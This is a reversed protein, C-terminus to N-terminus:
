SAEGGGGGRKGSPRDFRWITGDDCSAILTSGEDSLATQRVVSEGGCGASAAGEQMKAASPAGGGGGGGIRGQQQEKLISKVGRPVACRLKKRPEAPGGAPLPVRRPDFVCVKGERGGCALTEGNADLSFRVFYVDDAKSLRLSNLLRVRPEELKPVLASSSTPPRAAGPAAPAASASAPSSLPGSSAVEAASAPAGRLPCTLGEVGDVAWCLVRDDVTKSLIVGPGLWRVCDAVRLHVRQSTFRPSPVIRPAFPAFPRDDTEDGGDPGRRARRGRRGGEGFSAEVAGAIGELSWVKVSSDFGSSAFALPDSPHWDVSLVEAVHAGDGGAFRAVCCRSELNWLRVSQDRSATLALAPKTPHVAIDNISGGHGRATWSLGGLSPDIVRLVGRKGAALLLPLSLEKRKAEKRARKRKKRTSSYLRHSWKCVYFEEDAAEDLYTQLVSFPLQQQQQQQQQQLHKEAGGDGDPSPIRSLSSAPPPLAPAFYVTIRRSGASAFM